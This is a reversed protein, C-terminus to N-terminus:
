LILFRIGESASTVMNVFLAMHPVKDTNTSCPKMSLFPAKTYAWRMTVLPLCTRSPLAM